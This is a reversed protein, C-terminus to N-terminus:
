YRSWIMKIEVNYNNKMIVQYSKYQKKVQLKEIRTINLKVWQTDLRQYFLYKSEITQRM